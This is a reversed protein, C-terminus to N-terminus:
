PTISSAVLTAHVTGCNTPTLGDPNRRNDARALGIPALRMMREAKIM